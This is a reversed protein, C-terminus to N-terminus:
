GKSKSACIPKSNQFSYCWRGPSLTLCRTRPDIPCRFQFRMSDEHRKWAIQPFRLGGTQSGQWRALHIRKTSRDMRTRFFARKQLKGTIEEFRGAAFDSPKVVCKRSRASRAPNRSSYKWSGVDVVRASLRRCHAVAKSASRHSTALRPLAPEPPM